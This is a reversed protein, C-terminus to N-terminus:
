HSLSFHLENIRPACHHLRYLKIYFTACLKKFKDISLELLGVRLFLIDPAHMRGNQNPLLMNDTEIIEFKKLSNQVM